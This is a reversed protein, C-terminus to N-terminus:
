ITEMSGHTYKNALQMRLVLANYKPSGVAYESLDPRTVQEQEIEQLVAREGPAMVLLLREHLTM